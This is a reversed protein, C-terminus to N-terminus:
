RYFNKIETLETVLATIRSTIANYKELSVDRKKTLAKLEKEIEKVRKLDTKNLDKLKIDFTNNNFQIIDGM